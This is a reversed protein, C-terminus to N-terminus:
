SCWSFNCRSLLKPYSTPSMTFNEFCNDLSMDCNDLSMDCNDLSMDCNDLSMDRASHTSKTVKHKRNTYTHKCCRWITFAKSSIFRLMASSIWRRLDSTRLRLALNVSSSFLIGARMLCPLGKLFCFNRTKSDSYNTTWFSLGCTLCYSKLKVQKARVTTQPGSAKRFQHSCGRARAFVCVYVGCSFSRSLWPITVSARAGGGGTSDAARETASQFMGIKEYVYVVSYLRTFAQMRRPPRAHKLISRALLSCVLVLSARGSRRMQVLIKM